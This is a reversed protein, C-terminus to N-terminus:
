ALVPQDWRIGGSWLPRLHDPHSHFAPRRASTQLPRHSFARSPARAGPSQVTRAPMLIRRRKDRHQPMLQCSRHHRPRFSPWPLQSSPHLLLDPSFPGRVVQILHILVRGHDHFYIHTGATSSSELSQVKSLPSGATSVENSVLSSSHRDAPLMLLDTYTM